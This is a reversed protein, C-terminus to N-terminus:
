IIKRYGSQHSYDLSKQALTRPPLSQKRVQKRIELGVQHVMDYNLGTTFSDAGLILKASQPFSNVQNLFLIMKETSANPPIDKDIPKTYHSDAENHPEAKDLISTDFCGIDQIARTIDTQWSMYTHEHFHMAIRELPLHSKMMKWNKEFECPFVAKGRTDGLSVQYCGLDFLLQCLGITTAIPVDNGNRYGFAASVYGRVPIKDQKAQEIIERIRSKIIETAVNKEPKEDTRINYIERNREESASISVSIEDPMGPNEQLVRSELLENIKTRPYNALSPGVYVSFIGPVKRKRLLGLIEFTNKIHPFKDYNVSAGIEFKKIGARALKEISNVVIESPLYLGHCLRYDRFGVEYLEIKKEVRM